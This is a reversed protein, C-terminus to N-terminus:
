VGTLDSLNWFIQQDYFMLLNDIEGLCFPGISFLSGVNKSIENALFDFSNSINSLQTLSYVELAFVEFIEHGVAMLHLISPIDVSVSQLKMCEVSSFNMNLKAEVIDVLDLRVKGLLVQSLKGFLRM